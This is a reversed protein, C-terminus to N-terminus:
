RRLKRKMVDLLEHETQLLETLLDEVRELDSEYLWRDDHPAAAVAKVEAIFNGITETHAIVPSMDYGKAAGELSMQKIYATVPLGVRKAKAEVVKNEDDNYSIHRTM